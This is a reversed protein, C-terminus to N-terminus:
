DALYSVYWAVYCHRQSLVLHSTIFFFVLSQHALTGTILKHFFLRSTGNLYENQKVKEFSFSLFWVQNSVQSLITRPRSVSGLPYRDRSLWGLPYQFGFFTSGFYLLIYTCQVYLVVGVGGGRTNYPPSLSLKVDM